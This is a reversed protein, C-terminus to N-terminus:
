FGLFFGFIQLFTQIRFDLFLFFQKKPCNKQKLAIRIKGFAVM